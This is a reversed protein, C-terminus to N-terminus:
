HRDAPRCPHLVTRDAHPRELHAVARRPALDPDAVLLPQPGPPPPGLTRIRFPLHTAGPSPRGSDCSGAVHTSRCLPATNAAISRAIRLSARAPRLRGNAM